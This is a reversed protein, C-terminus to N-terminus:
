KIKFKATFLIGLNYLKIKGFGIGNIPLQFFPEAQLSFLTSFRKEAVASLNLSSFYHQSNNVFNASRTTDNGSQGAFYFQYAERKMFYSSSGATLSLSGNKFTKLAYVVSLPIEIVSCDAQINKFNVGFAWSGPPAHYDMSRATYKEQQLLVSGRISWKKGISYQLGAGYVPQLAGLVGIRTGSSQWGSSLLLTLENKKIKKIIQNVQGKVTLTDKEKNIKGTDEDSYEQSKLNLKGMAVVTSITDIAHKKNDSFHLANQDANVNADDTATTPKKNVKDAMASKEKPVASSHFALVPKHHLTKDTRAASEAPLITRSKQIFSITDNKLEVLATTTDNAVKGNKDGTNQQHYIPQERSYREDNEAPKNKTITENRHAKNEARTAPTSSYFFYIIGIGLMLLPIWFFLYYKRAKKQPLHKNLLAEMKKWENGEFLPINNHMAKKIKDDFDEVSM